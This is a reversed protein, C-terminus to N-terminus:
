KTTEKAYAREAFNLIEEVKLSIRTLKNAQKYAISYEETHWKEDLHLLIKNKSKDFFSFFSSESHFKNPLFNDDVLIDYGFCKANRKLIEYTGEKVSDNDLFVNKYFIKIM